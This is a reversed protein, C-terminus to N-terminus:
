VIDSRIGSCTLTYQHLLVLARYMGSFVPMSVRMSTFVRFRRHTNVTSMMLYLLHRRAGRAGRLATMHM